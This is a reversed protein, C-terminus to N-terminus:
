GSYTWKSKCKPCEAFTTTSEDGGRTQKAYTFVRWSGCKKCETVGEEVEFPSIIFEDQEDLRNKIIEFTPHNWCIKKDKLNGLTIKLPNKLLIDGIIQYTIRKYISEIDELSDKSEEESKESIYKQFTAINKSSKLISTLAKKCDDIYCM